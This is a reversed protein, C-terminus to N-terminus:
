TSLATPASSLTTQERQTQGSAPKGLANREQRSHHKYCASAPNRRRLILRLAPDHRAARSRGGAWGWLHQTTYSTHTYTDDTSKCGRIDPRGFAFRGDLRVGVGPERM